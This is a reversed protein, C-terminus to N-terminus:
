RERDRERRERVCMESGVLSLRMEYATKQKFLCCVGKVKWVRGDRECM